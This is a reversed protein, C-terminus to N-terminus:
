RFKKRMAILIGAAGMALMGWESGESMPTARVSEKFPFASSALPSRLSGSSSNRVEFYGNFGPTPGDHPNASGRARPSFNLTSSAVTCSADTVRGLTGTVCSDARSIRSFAAVLVATAVFRVKMFAIKEV